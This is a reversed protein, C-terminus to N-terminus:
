QVLVNDGDWSFNVFLGDSRSIYKIFKSVEQGKPDKLISIELESKKNIYTPIYYSQERIILIYATGFAHHIRM